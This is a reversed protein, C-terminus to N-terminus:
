NLVTRPRAFYFAYDNPIRAPMSYGLLNCIVSSPLQFNDGLKCLLVILENWTKYNIVIMNCVIENIVIM